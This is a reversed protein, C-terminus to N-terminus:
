VDKVVEESVKKVKEKKNMIVMIEIIAVFLMLIIITESLPIRTIAIVSAILAETILTIILTKIFKIVVEKTRYIALYVIGILIISIITPIIFPKVLDRIRINSNSNITLDDVTLSVGYKENIKNILEEKEEDTIQEVVIDVSDNFMEVNKVISKKNEFVEGCIQNIDKLEVEKGVKVVISEHKQLQLSVNVGKLAVVFIGAVILLIVGFLFLKKYGDLKM